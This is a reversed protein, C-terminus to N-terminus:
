QIGEGVVFDLRCSKWKPSDMNIMDTDMDAFFVEMDNYLIGDPDNLKWSATFSPNQMHDKLYFQQEPVTTAQSISTDNRVTVDGSSSASITGDSKDTGDNHINFDISIDAEQGSVGLLINKRYSQGPLAISMADKSQSDSVTQINSIIYKYTYGDANIYKLELEKVM